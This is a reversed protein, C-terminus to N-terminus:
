REVRESNCVLVGVCVCVYVRVCVCVCRVLAEQYANAVKQAPWVPSHLALTPELPSGRREGHYRNTQTQTHTHTRTHTYSQLTCNYPPSRLVLGDSGMTSTHMYTHTHIHTHTHTYSQLTCNFPPSWLVVADSGMTDTHASKHKHKHTHTHTHARTHIISSHLALTPEVPSSWQKGHYRLTHLTHIHTCTHTHTYTHIHPVQTHSPYRTHKQTYAFV